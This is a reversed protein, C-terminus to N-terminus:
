PVPWGLRTPQEYIRRLTRVDRSSIPPPTRVQSYYLADTELPSHGWIGLAHGLEHRAAALIQVDALGPRLTITLRQVIKPPAHDARRVFFEYRTEASRARGRGLTPTTRWIQIDAAAPTAALTLPLYESWERVAQQVLQVWVQSRDPTVGSSAPEVYVKVPFEFWVLYGLPTPRIQDFYDGSADPSHWRALTPPLPHARLPPLAESPLPPPAIAPSPAPVPPSPADSLPVAVHTGLLVFLVTVICVTSVWTLKQVRPRKM